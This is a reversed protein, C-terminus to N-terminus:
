WLRRFAFKWAVSRQFVSKAWAVFRTHILKAIFCPATSRRSEFKAPGFEIRPFAFAHAHMEATLASFYFNRGPDRTRLRPLPFVRTSCNTSAVIIRHRLQNEAVAHRRRSVVCASEGAFKTNESEGEEQVRALKWMEFSCVKQASFAFLALASKKRRQM